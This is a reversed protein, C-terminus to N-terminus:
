VCMRLQSRIREDIREEASEFLELLNDKGARIFDGRVLCANDQASYLNEKADKEEREAESEWEEDETETETQVEGAEKKQDRHETWFKRLKRVAMVLEEAKSEEEDAALAAEEKTDLLNKQWKRLKRVAKIAPLLEGKLSAKQLSYVMPMVEARTGVAEMGKDYAADARARARKAQRWAINM